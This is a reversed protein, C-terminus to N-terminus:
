PYPRVGVSRYLPASAFVLGGKMTSIVHTADEIRAIPDGDVVVLDALKGPAISGTKGDIKLARAAGLTAMRLADAPTIGAQVFLALEHHLMLGAIQDTGAVLTLGAEHLVKVMELIKAWSRLYLEHKGGELPLGGVLFDRRVVAPMRAVTAELGPMIQGPVAVFLDEFADMTPDIVTHHEKLLAIFDRVPAGALDLSAAHDGVLTFRTTDRTDTDHTAFFNLFLMTTHEIGDYGALVAENALVHVPIHGTVQMGHAHAEAVIVPILEPRISNYIKIGDYRRDVFFKVAAKAEAETEATVKSAAAKENRGEVFGMRYVHPGIAAGQDWRKKYDDLRDPDNGVDRVTTVGSAINLVGDADGLHAHMDILGPLLARGTLDVVEAGAPVPANRAVAVITEGVVIVNQDEIWTGRAVDLVRAHVYALGAAPPRHTEAKALAADRALVLEDRKAVLPETASEWGDPVLAEWHNAYGFWTGDANLWTYTPLFGLGTIAYATLQRTEGHATVAISGAREVHAEGAPLLAITGGAALAARVLLPSAEPIESQPWFFAPGHLDQKDGTEEESKWTAAGAVRRFSEAVKTGMEHHGTAELSALTGDAAIQLEADVHPGRGNELVHFTTTVTGRDYVATEYGSPRGLSVYTRKFTQKGGLPSPPPTAHGCAAVCLLVALRM